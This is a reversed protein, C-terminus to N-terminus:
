DEGKALAQSVAVKAEDAESKLTRRLQDRTLKDYSAEHAVAFRDILADAIATTLNEGGISNNGNRVLEEIKKNPRTQIICVDTTGGGFDFILFNQNPKQINQYEENYALAAAVPETLTIPNAIGAIKAAKEVLANQDPSFDSPVTIVAQYLPTETGFNVQLDNWIVALLYASLIEPAWQKGERHYKANDIDKGIDVKFNWFHNSNELSHGKNGIDDRKRFDPMGGARVFVRSLLPEQLGRSFAKKQMDYVMAECTTTGLDIGIAYRQNSGVAPSVVDSLGYRARLTRIEEATNLIDGQIEVNELPLKTTPDVVSVKITKNVDIRVQVGIKSLHSGNLSIERRTLSTMEQNDTGSQRLLQITLDTAYTNIPFERFCSHPLTQRAPVLLTPELRGYTATELFLDSGLIQQTEEGPHSLLDRHHIAAGKAILWMLDKAVIKVGCPFRKELLDQVLPIQSTGGALLISTLESHDMGAKSLAGDAVAIANEVLPMIIAEFERGSLEERLTHGDHFNRIRIEHGM